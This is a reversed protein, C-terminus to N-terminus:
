TERRGHIRMAPDRALPQLRGAHEMRVLGLRQRCVRPETEKGGVAVALVGGRARLCGAWLHGACVSYTGSEAKDGDTDRQHDDGDRSADLGVRCTAGCAARRRSQQFGEGICCGDTESTSRM